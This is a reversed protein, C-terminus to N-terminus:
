FTSFLRRFLEGLAGLCLEPVVFSGGFSSRFVLPFFVGLFVCFFVTKALSRSARKFSSLKVLMTEVGTDVEISPSLSLSLPCVDIPCM